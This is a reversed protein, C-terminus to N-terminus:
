SGLEGSCSKGFPVHFKRLYISNFMQGVESASSQWSHVGLQARTMVFTGRLGQADLQPCESAQSPHAAVSFESFSKTCPKQHVGACGVTFMMLDLGICTHM